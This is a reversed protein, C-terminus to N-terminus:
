PCRSAAFPGNADLDFTPTGTLQGHVWNNDITTIELTGEYFSGGGGWCDDPGSNEGSVSFSSYSFEPASLDYTGVAQLAPPIGISVRWHPCGGYAFPDACAIAPNGIFVFLDNPDLNGGGTSVSTSGGTGDIPPFQSRLMAIANGDGPDSGGAGSNGGAGGNGGGGSIANEGGGAVVVPGCAVTQLAILATAALLARYSHSFSFM